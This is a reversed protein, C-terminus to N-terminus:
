PSHPPHPIRDASLELALLFGTRCGDQFARCEERACMRVFIRRIHQQASPSLAALLDELDPEERIVQLLTPRQDSYASYLLELPSFFSAEGAHNASTM